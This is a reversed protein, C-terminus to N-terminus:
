AAQKPVSALVPIHLVEAVEGPTRFSPDLYEALFGAGLSAIVSFIFGLVFVSLPSYAPLLPVTPAVALAVNAVRSRDMADSSREQERKALYLLYNSENAKAERLLDQQKISKQDLQVTELTMARISQALSSATAQQTALDAKTKALDERLLLYTPDQDTTLSAIKSKEADAIAAKSQAVEQEAEVVMPYSADYKMLLQTRKLEANLLQTHLQQLLLGADQNTQQTLIRPATTKLQQEVDAIRHQDAAVAARAQNLLGELDVLKTAVLTRQVDPAVVGESPGFNVLKAEVDLLSQRYKEAETTFVDSSGTPRHTLLHKQLYLKSLNDLVCAPTEPAGVSGYSVDIMDALKEVEVKIGKALLKAQKEVRIAERREPDNPLLFDTFGKKNDLGCNIAVQRLVDAGQLLAMESNIQDPNIMQTSQVAANPGATVAPDSRDQLVLIQMSSEYYRAAWGVSFVVTGLLLGLFSILVLRRHRFGVACWDRLTAYRTSEQRRLLFDRDTM